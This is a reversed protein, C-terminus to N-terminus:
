ICAFLLDSEAVKDKAVIMVDLYDDSNSVLIPTTIDFGAQVISDVDFEILLDGKKVKQGKEVIAKFFQGDLKVTDIGIHILIEAGLHSKIGIAHHTKFLSEVMGDVPSYLKGQLPVVAAGKGMLESSFTADNVESLPIVKGRLPSAVEECRPLSTPLKHEINENVNKKPPALVPERYFLATLGMALGVAVATGILAGYVSNDIGSEPIFQAFSFISALGMSYIKTQYFGIIGGGIAGALCGMVFPTKRPLTVGYVAPETIGFVATLSSSAALSRTSQERTKLAVGLSAGVQGFVAPLMFPIFADFGFTALNNIVIPIVGWHIGFIVLVQWLAGLTVGAIIPNLQYLMLFVSALSNSIVTALPGIVLFTLPVVILLCCFPTLLNKVSSHFFVDLIKELRANFWASLIIPIVSSSYNIYTIPIGLFFEQPLLDPVSLTLASVAHFHNTVEPHILAGGIAMTVFPKGGFKKAATYGLLVPLFFFFSDAAAYLLRYTGTDTFLWGMALSLAIAGKLIGAAAMLGLLPAFIGSIIDIFRHFVPESSHHEDAESVTILATIEDFVQAVHNGIVVQFQGASRRVTIIEHMQQLQEMQGLSDDKLKFRLRTACHVVSDINKEGGVAEVIHKALSAYM